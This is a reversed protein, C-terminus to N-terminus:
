KKSKGLISGWKSRRMILMTIIGLAAYVGLVMLTAIINATKFRALLPLKTIFSSVHISNYLFFAIPAIIGTIIYWVRRKVHSTDFKGGGWKIMNAVIFALVVAAVAVIVAYMYTEGILAQVDKLAEIKKM